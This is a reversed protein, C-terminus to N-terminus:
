PAEGRTRPVLDFIEGAMEIEFSGAKPTLEFIKRKGLGAGEAGHAALRLSRASLAGLTRELTHRMRRRSDLKFLGNRLSLTGRVVVGDGGNADELDWRGSLGDLRYRDVQNFILWDDRSAVFELVFKGRSYVPAVFEAITVDGEAALLRSELIDPVWSRYAEFKSLVAFALPRPVKIYISAKVTRLM